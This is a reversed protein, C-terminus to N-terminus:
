LLDNKTLLFLFNIYSHVRLPILILFFNNENKRKLIQTKIIHVLM